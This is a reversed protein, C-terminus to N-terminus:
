GALVINYIVRQRASFKGSVPIMRTIDSAYGLASSVGSDNVVLDGAILQQTHGRNHLIEGHRTFIVPYAGQLDHSRMIGEIMGFVQYEFKGPKSQRMALIHMEKIITLTREMEVIEEKGKIERM